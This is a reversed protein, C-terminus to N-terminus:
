YRLYFPESTAAMNVRHKGHRRTELRPTSVCFSRRQTLSTNAATEFIGLASSSPCFKQRHVRPLKSLQDALASGVCGSVVVGNEVTEGTEVSNGEAAGSKQREEWMGIDFLRLLLLQRKPEDSLAPKLLACGALFVPGATVVM